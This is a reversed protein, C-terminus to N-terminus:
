NNDYNNLNINNFAQGTRRGNILTLTSNAGLGRLNINAAGTGRNSDQETATGGVFSPLTRLGEIPTNAGTLILQEQSYVAVPAFSEEIAMPINSGAVVFKELKVTEDGTGPRAPATQALAATGALLSVGGVAALAACSLLTKKM